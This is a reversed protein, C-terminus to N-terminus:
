YSTLVPVVTLSFVFAGALALLVTTAMPRFLKGETSTLALIPLYVIAIIAEGFVSASRVEVTATEVTHVREGSTLQRGLARAQESLKRMSNEVIIVAGDVLLGFDIAGLSMLNGSLGFLNMAIIAFLLSLPITLAVVIGSRLDGLLLFLVASVLLAGELLNKGVTKITRDVLVSRDYFPELTTGPPLSQQILELKAKVSETVVRSNEGLLMM